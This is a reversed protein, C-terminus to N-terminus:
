NRSSRKRPQPRRWRFGKLDPIELSITDPCIPRTDPLPDIADSTVPVPNPDVFIKMSGFLIEILNAFDFLVNALLLAIEKRAGRGLM